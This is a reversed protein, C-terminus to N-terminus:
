TLGIVKPSQVEEAVFTATSQTTGIDGGQVVLVVDLMESAGNAWRNKASLVGIVLMLAPHVTMEVIGSLKSLSAVPTMCRNQLLEHLNKAITLILM